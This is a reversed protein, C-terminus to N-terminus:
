AHAWISLNTSELVQLSSLRLATGSPLPIMPELARFNSYALNKRQWREWLHLPLISSQHHFPQAQSLQHPCILLDLDTEASQKIPSHKYTQQVLLQELHHQRQPGAISILMGRRFM